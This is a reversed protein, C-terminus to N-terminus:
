AVDYRLLADTGPVHPEGRFAESNGFRDRCTSFRGDCGEFLRVRAGFAADPPVWGAVTVQQGALDLIDRDVGALPGELFRIRGFAFAVEQVVGEDLMLRPGAQATVRRDISRGSMDVGCQGDGLRARCLPSCAPPGSRALLSWRPLVDFMFQEASNGSGRQVDGIIGAFLEVRNSDPATWDCAFVTIEAGKWRGLDLDFRSILDSALAGAVEMGAEAPEDCLLIASPSFGPNPVYNMGDIALKRDHSTFGLKLGDPRVISMCFTISTLEQDLWPSPSDTM